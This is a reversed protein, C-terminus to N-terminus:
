RVDGTQGTRVEKGGILLPIDHATKAMSELTKKLRDRDPTGPAYPLVPENIPQPVKAVANVTSMRAVYDPRARNVVREADHIPTCVTLVGDRRRVPESACRTM